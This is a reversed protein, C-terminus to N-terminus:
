WEFAGGTLTLSAAGCQDVIKVFPGEFSATQPGTNFFNGGTDTVEDIGGTGTVKMYPM